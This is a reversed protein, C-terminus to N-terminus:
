CTDDALWTSACCHARQLYSCDASGPSQRSNLSANNAHLSDGALHRPFLAGALLRGQGRRGPGTLTGGTASGAIGTQHGTGTGPTPSGTGAGHLRQTM